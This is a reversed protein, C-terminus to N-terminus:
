VYFRESVIKGDKVEYMCLERMNMRGEGKMTVDMQMSCAFSNEAVLPESVTLKHMTEVMADFKKGKELIAALGHTEQAFHPTPFPEISVANDAYLERQAVEWKAERCHTVLRQAIDETKMILFLHVHKVQTPSLGIDPALHSRPHGLREM